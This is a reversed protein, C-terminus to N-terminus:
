FTFNVFNPDIQIIEGRDFRYDLFIGLFNFKVPYFKLFSIFFYIISNYRCIVSDIHM